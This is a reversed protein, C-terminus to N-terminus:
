FRLVPGLRGSVVVASARSLENGDVVFRHRSLPASSELELRWEIVRPARVSFALGFLPALWELSAERNVDFGEGRGHVVVYRLGACADLRWRAGLFPAACARGLVGFARLAAIQEANVPRDQEHTVNGLVAVSWREGIGLEALLAGGFAVKPLTGIESAEFLGLRAEFLPPSPPPPERREPRFDPVPDPRRTWIDPSIGSEAAGKPEGEGQFVALSAAVAATEAAHECDKAAFRREGLHHGDLDIAVAVQLGAADHAIAISGALRALDAADVLSALRSEFLPASSICDPGRWSFYEPEANARKPAAALVSLLTM